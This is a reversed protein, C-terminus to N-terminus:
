LNKTKQKMKSGFLRDEVWLALAGARLSVLGCVCLWVVIGM